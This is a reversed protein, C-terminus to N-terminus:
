ERVIIVKVKDGGVYEDTFPWVPIFQLGKACGNDSIEVEVAKAMLQQKQWKVGYVVARRLQLKYGIKDTINDAYNKAAKELDESVPEDIAQKCIAEITAIMDLKKDGYADIVEIIKRALDERTM